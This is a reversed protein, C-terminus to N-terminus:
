WRPAIQSVDVYAHRGGNQRALKVLFNDANSQPGFGFEITHIMIGGARRRIKELQAPWLQPEDADTLFFIVDPQLRVAMLLADEHRTGGDATISGVFKAALNKNRETAFFLRNPQGTPNFRWPKENYFIIQFQHTRELSQLSAILQAKAAALASRGSGGMSGSRDFVYAFKYGEGELGFVSVRAKGGLPGRTSGDTGRDAGGASGVGGGELSSPGIALASPLMDSPDSPPQDSLMEALSESGGDSASDTATSQAQGSDAQSEYYNEGGDQKKLVIGVEATREGAAGRPPGPRLLLAVAVLVAAHLVMSLLWSPVAPRERLLRAALPPAAHTEPISSM